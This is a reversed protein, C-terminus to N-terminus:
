KIERHPLDDVRRRPIRLSQRESDGRRFLALDGEVGEFLWDAYSQGATLRVTRDAHTAILVAQKGQRILGVVNLEALNGAPAGAPADPAPRRSAWFPPRALAAGDGQASAAAEPHTLPAIEPRLPAPAVWRLDPLMWALALAVALVVASVLPLRSSMM